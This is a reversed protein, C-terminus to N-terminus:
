SSLQDEDSHLQEVFTRDLMGEVFAQYFSGAAAVVMRDRCRTFTGVTLPKSLVDAVQDCGPVHNVQLERRLVKEQVFHMGLEVHKVRAHLIPNTALLVISSNDCWITPICFVIIDIEDLLLRYWTLKAAVNVLSRYEVKTTSRSVANQKKLSWGILNNGLYICLGSTSKCDELSSACDTYSFSTLLGYDIMGQIYRLNRKIVIWHIDYPLHMYQSVKNIFFSIDPQTLCMYQLSGVVELGLFYNLEGLDKLAYKQDLSQVVDEHKSCSDSTIIIDDVYVLIFLNSTSSHKFFLSADAKSSQFHLDQTLYGHLKEFWARSVEFGLPQKM